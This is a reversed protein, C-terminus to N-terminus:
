ILVLVLLCCREYAILLRRALFVRTPKYSSQKTAFDWVWVSFNSSASVFWVSFFM